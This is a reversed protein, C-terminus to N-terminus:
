RLFRGISVRMPPMTQERDLGEPCGSGYDCVLLCYIDKASVQAQVM